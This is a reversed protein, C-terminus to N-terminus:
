KVTFSLSVSKAASQNAAALSKRTDVEFPRGIHNGALDELAGDVLLHFDGARWPEVPSFSWRTEDREIVIHGLIPKGDPAVIRL